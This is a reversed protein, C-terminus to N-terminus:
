FLILIWETNLLLVPLSKNQNAM